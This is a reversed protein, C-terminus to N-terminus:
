NAKLVALTRRYGKLYPEFGYGCLAVQWKAGLWSLIGSSLKDLEFKETEAVFSFTDEHLKGKVM